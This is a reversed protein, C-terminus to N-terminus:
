PDSLHGAIGGAGLTETFMRRIENVSIVCHEPMEAETPAYLVRRDELSALVRRAIDRDLIPPKWGVGFIPTSFSTFQAAVKKFDVAMGRTEWWGGQMNRGSDVQVYRKRRRQPGHALRRPLAQARCPVYPLLF